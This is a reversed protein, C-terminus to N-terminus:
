PRKLGERDILADITRNENQHGVSREIGQVFADLSSVGERDWMRAINIIGGISANINRLV